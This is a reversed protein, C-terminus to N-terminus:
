EVSLDTPLFIFLLFLNHDRNQVHKCDLLPLPIAHAAHLLPPYIQEDSIEIPPLGLPSHHFAVPQALYTVAPAEVAFSPSCLLLLVLIAEQLM